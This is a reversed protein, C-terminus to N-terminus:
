GEIFFSVEDNPFLKELAKKEKDQIENFIEFFVIKM